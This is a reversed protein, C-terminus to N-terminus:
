EEYDVHQPNLKNFEQTEQARKLGNEYLKDWREQTIDALDEDSVFLGLKAAVIPIFERTAKVDMQRGYNIVNKNDVYPINGCIAYFTDVMSQTLGTVALIEEKKLPNQIITRLIGFIKGTRFNFDEWVPKETITKIKNVIDNYIDNGFDRIALEEKMNESLNNNLKAMREEYLQQITKTM